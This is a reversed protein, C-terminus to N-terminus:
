SNYHFRTLELSYRSPSNGILSDQLYNFSMFHQSFPLKESQPLPKSRKNSIVVQLRGWFCSHFSKCPKLSLISLHISNESSFYPGYKMMLDITKHLGMSLARFIIVWCSHRRTNGHTEPSITQCAKETAANSIRPRLSPFNNRDFIM